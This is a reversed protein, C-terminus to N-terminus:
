LLQLPLRWHSHDHSNEPMSESWISEWVDSCTFPREGTHLRMHNTLGSKRTFRKLCEDCTFPKEGTHIRKHKTLDSECRIPKVGWGEKNVQKRSIPSYEKSEASDVQCTYKMEDEDSKCYEEPLTKIEVFPDSSSHDNANEPCGVPDRSELKVPTLLLQDDLESKLPSKILIEANM